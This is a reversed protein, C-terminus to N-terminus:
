IQWYHQSRHAACLLHWACQPRPLWRLDTSVRIDENDVWPESPSAEAALLRNNNYAYGSEVCRLDIQGGETDFGRKGM